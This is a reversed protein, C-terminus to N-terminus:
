EIFNFPPCYTTNCDVISQFNQWCEYCNKRYHEAVDMYFDFYIRDEDKSATGRDKVFIVEFVEIRSHYKGYGFVYPNRGQNCKGSNTFNVNQYVYMQSGINSGQQLISRSIKLEGEIVASYKTDKCVFYDMTIRLGMVDLVFMPTPVHQQNEQCSAYPGVLLTKGNFRKIFPIYWPDRFYSPLFPGMIGDNLFFFYNYKSLDVLGSDLLTRYACLDFGDNNRKVIFLNCQKPIELGYHKHGNVIFYYDVIGQEVKRHRM